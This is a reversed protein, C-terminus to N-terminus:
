NSILERINRVIELVIEMFVFSHMDATVQLCTSLYALSMLLAQITNLVQAFKQFTQMECQFFYHFINSFAIKDSLCTIKAISFKNSSYGLNIECNELFCYAQQGLTKNTITKQYSGLLLM